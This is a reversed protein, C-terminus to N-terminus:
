GASVVNGDADATGSWDVSEDIASDVAAQLADKTLSAWARMTFAATSDAFFELVVPAGAILSDSFYTDNQYWRGLSGSVEAMGGISKKWTSGFDTVDILSRGRSISYSKCGAATSLPLYSGSVTVASAGQSATFTVRGVLREITFGTTVTVGAVKVTVAAFPDWCNKASNTITYVLHAGDGTTAENTFPVAAGAVRILSKRGALAPM